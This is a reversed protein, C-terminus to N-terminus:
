RYQAELEEFISKREDLNDEAKRKQFDLYDAQFKLAEEEVIMEYISNYDTIM